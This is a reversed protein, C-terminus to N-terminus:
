AGAIKGTGADAGAAILREITNICEVLIRHDDFASIMRARFHRETDDGSKQEKLAAFAYPLVLADKFSDAIDFVLGGPRTKGHFLAMHPPIGLAWLAAGAMGYCLYNGHDILQNVQKLEDSLAENKSLSKGPTRKFKSAGTMEAFGAYCSKAYSGEFGLLQQIDQASRIKQVLDRSAKSIIPAERVKLVKASIRIGIKGMREARDTLVSRAAALSRSEDLYIPLMDRFHRTDRYTTLAGMHLPTGGTGTAALHVGEEGLLRMADSTISTGQGMFLVALNVHPVNFERRLEDDAIHYIIRGDEVHIRARELYLAGERATVLLRPGGKHQM